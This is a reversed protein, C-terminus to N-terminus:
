NRGEFVYYTSCVQYTFKMMGRGASDYINISVM